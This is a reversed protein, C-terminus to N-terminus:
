KRAQNNDTKAKEERRPRHPGISAEKEMKYVRAATADTYIANSKISERKKNKLRYRKKIHTPHTNNNKDTSSVVLQIFISCTCNCIEEEKTHGPSGLFRIIGQVCYILEAPQKM